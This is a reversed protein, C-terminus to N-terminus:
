GIERGNFGKNNEKKDAILTDNSIKGSNANV